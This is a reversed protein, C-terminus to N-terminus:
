LASLLRLEAVLLFTQLTLNKDTQRQEIGLASSLVQSLASTLTINKVLRIFYPLSHSSFNVFSVRPPCLIREFIYSHICITYAYICPNGHIYTSMCMCVSVFLLVRLSFSCGKSSDCTTSPCPFSIETFLFHPQM